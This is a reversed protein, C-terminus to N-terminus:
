CAGDPWHWTGGAFTNESWGCSCYRFPQGHQERNACPAGTTSGGADHPVGEKFFLGTPNHVELSLATPVYVQELTRREPQGHGGTRVESTTAWAGVETITAARCKSQYEGGPTGYSVYHVTRGVAPQKAVRPERNGQHTNEQLAWPQLNRRTRPTNDSNAGHSTRGPQYNNPIQKRPSRTKQAFL